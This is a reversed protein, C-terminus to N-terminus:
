GRVGASGVAAEGDGGGDGGGGDDYIVVAMMRSVVVSRSKMERQATVLVGNQPTWLCLYWSYV